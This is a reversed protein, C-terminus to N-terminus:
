ASEGVRRAHAIGFGRMVSLGDRRAGCYTRELATDSLLEVVEFGSETLLAHIAEPTHFSVYSEGMRATVLRALSLTRGSGNALAYEPLLYDFILESGPPTIAAIDALTARIATASLYYIVGQWACFTRVQAAYHSRGLGEGLREHEFDIAVADFDAFRSRGAIAALRALKVAQTAPHDVEIIRTGVLWPPRRLVVSDFGAGLLLYQAPSREAVFARLREETVQDRVLIWGHVPRLRALLGRVVARHLLPHRCVTRWLRSTLDVAYPDAFIHPSDYLLHSARIAATAEATRSHSSPRM